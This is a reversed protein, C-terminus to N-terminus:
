YEKVYVDDYYPNKGKIMNEFFGKPLGNMECFEEETQSGGNAAWMAQVMEIWPKGYKGTCKGFPIKFNKTNSEFDMIEIVRNYNTEKM